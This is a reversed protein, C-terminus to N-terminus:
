RRETLVVDGVRCDLFGEAVVVGGVDSFREERQLLIGAVPEEEERGVGGVDALEQVEDLHADQLPLPPLADGGPAGEKLLVSESAGTRTMASGVKTKVRTAPPSQLEVDFVERDHHRVRSCLGYLLLLEQSTFRAGERRIKQRSRM